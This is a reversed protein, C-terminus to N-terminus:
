RCAAAAVDVISSTMLRFSRSLSYCRSNSAFREYERSVATEYGISVELLIRHSLGIQNFFDGAHNFHGPFFGLNNHLGNEVTDHAGQPGSVLNFDATEAAKPRALPLRPNAAVGLGARAYLYRRFLNGIVFRTLFQLVHDVVGSGHNGRRSGFGNRIRVLGGDGILM